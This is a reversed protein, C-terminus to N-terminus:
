FTHVFNIRHVLYMAALLLVYCVAYLVLANDLNLGPLESRADVVLGDDAGYTELSVFLFFIMQAFAMTIMIFYVGKTRLCVAGTLLAFVMSAAVTLFIHFFGNYSAM